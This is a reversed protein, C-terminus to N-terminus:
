KDASPRQRSVSNSCYTDVEPRQCSDSDSPQSEASANELTGYSRPLFDQVAPAPEANRRMHSPALRMKGFLHHSHHSLDWLSPDRRTRSPPSYPEAYTLAVLRRASRRHALAENEQRSRQCTSASTGCTCFDTDRPLDWLLSDFLGNVSWNRLYHLFVHINEPDKGPCLEVASRSASPRFGGNGPACRPAYRPVSRRHAWFSTQRFQDHTHLMCRIHKRSSLHLKLTGDKSNQWRLHQHRKKKKTLVMMLIRTVSNTQLSPAHVPPTQSFPPATKFSIQNQKQLLPRPVTKKRVARHECGVSLM